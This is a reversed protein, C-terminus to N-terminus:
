CHSRKNHETRRSIMTFKPINLKELVVISLKKSQFGHCIIVLVKSGTERLIGVLNEGHSNRIVIRRQEVSTM